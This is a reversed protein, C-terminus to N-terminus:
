TILNAVFPHLGKVYYNGLFGEWIGWFLKDAGQPDTSEGVKGSRGTDRPIFFVRSLSM